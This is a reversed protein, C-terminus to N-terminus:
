RVRMQPHHEPPRELASAPKRKKQNHSRRVCGNDKFHQVSSLIAEDWNPANGENCSYIKKGGGEPFKVNSHTHIFEGLSPDL